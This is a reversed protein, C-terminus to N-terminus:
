DDSGWEEEGAVWHEETNKFSLGSGKTLGCPGKPKIIRMTKDWEDGQKNQHLEVPKKRNEELWKKSLAKARVKRKM